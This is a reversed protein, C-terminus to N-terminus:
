SAVALDVTAWRQRYYPLKNYIMSEPCGLREAIRATDCGNNWMRVATIWEGTSLWNM